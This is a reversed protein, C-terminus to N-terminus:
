AAQVGTPYGAFFKGIGLMESGRSARFFGHEGWSAGWSNKVKWYETSNETGYGVTLVAHNHKPPSACTPDDIVGSKYSHLCDALISISVPRGVVASQLEREGQM